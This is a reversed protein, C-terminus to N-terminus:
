CNKSSSAPSIAKAAAPAPSSPSTTSTFGRVDLAVPVDDPDRSLLDGIYASGLEGQRGRSLLETLM